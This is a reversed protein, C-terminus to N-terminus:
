AICAGYSLNVVYATKALNAAEDDPSLKDNSKADSGDSTKVEPQAEEAEEPQVEVAEDTQVEEAESSEEASLVLQNVQGFSTKGFAFGNPATTYISSRQFSKNTNYTNTFSHVVGVVVCSYLFFNRMAFLM